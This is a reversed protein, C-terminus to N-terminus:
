HTGYVVVGEYSLRKLQKTGRVKIKIEALKESM